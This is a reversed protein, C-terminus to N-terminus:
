KKEAIKLIEGFRAPVLSDHGVLFGNVNGIKLIQYSNEVEVSGGYLIPLSHDLGNGFMEGVYKRIFLVMEHIDTPSMSEKYSKGIAWVPEYAIIVELLEKKSLGILSWKLQNKIFELYTGDKDREREGVCLIPTIKNELSLRIKKNIMEDSENPGNPNRRESHGLIVFKTGLSKLMSAGVEGTFPGKRESSINQGGLFLNKPNKSKLFLDLFVFPPCVVVDSGKLKSVLKKISSFISKAEVASEPNMKWNAVVLNKKKM